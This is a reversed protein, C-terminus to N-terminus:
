SMNTVSSAKDVDRNNRMHEMHSARSFDAVTLSADPTLALSPNSSEAMVECVLKVSSSATGEMGVENRYVTTPTGLIDLIDFRPGLKLSETKRDSMASIM